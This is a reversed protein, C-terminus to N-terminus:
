KIPKISRTYPGSYEILMGMKPHNIKSGENLFAQLTPNINKAKLATIFVKGNMIKSNKENLRITSKM